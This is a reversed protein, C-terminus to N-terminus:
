DKKLRRRSKKFKTKSKKLKRLQVPKKKNERLAGIENVFLGVGAVMPIDAQDFSNKKSPFAKGFGKLALGVANKIGM